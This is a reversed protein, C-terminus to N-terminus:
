CTLFDSFGELQNQFDATNNKYTPDTAVIIELEALIDQADGQTMALANNSPGCKALVEIMGRKQVNVVDISCPTELAPLEQNTKLTEQRMKADAFKRGAHHIYKYRNLLETTENKQVMRGYNYMTEAEKLLGLDATAKNPSQSEIM